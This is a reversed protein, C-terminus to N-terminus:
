VIYRIFRSQLRSLVQRIEYESAYATLGDWFIDADRLARSLLDTEGNGLGSFAPSFWIPQCLKLRGTAENKFVEWVLTDNEPKLRRVATKAGDGTEYLYMDAPVENWVLPLLQLDWGPPCVVSWSARGKRLALFLKTYVPETKM